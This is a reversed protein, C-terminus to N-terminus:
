LQVATNRESIWGSLIVDKCLYYIFLDHIYTHFSEIKILHNGALGLTHDSHLHTCFLTDISAPALLELGCQYAQAARRMVGTGFDVLFAKRDAMVALSPGFRMPDPNPTGTGLFVLIPNESGLHHSKDKVFILLNNQLQVLLYLSQPM